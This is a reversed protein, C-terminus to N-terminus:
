PHIDESNLIIAFSQVPLSHHGTFLWHVPIRDSVGWSL